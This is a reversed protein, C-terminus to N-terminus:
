RSSKRPFASKRFRQYPWTTLRKPSQNLRMAEAESTAESVPDPSATPPKNTTRMSAGKRTLGIAPTAQTKTENPEIEPVLQALLSPTAAALLLAVALPIRLFMM